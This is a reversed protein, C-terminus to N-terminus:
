FFLWSSFEFYFSNCDYSHPDFEVVFLYNFDFSSPHSRFFFGILFFFILLLIFLFWIQNFFMFFFWIDM